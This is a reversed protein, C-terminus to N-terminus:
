RLYLLKIVYYEYIMINQSLSVQISVSYEGFNDKLPRELVKAKNLINNM